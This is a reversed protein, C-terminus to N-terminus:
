IKTKKINATRLSIREKNSINNNTNLKPSTSIEIPLAPLDLIYNQNFFKYIIPVKLIHNLITALKSLVLLITNKASVRTSVILQYDGHKHHDNADM